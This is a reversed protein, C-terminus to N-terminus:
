LFRGGDDEVNFFEEYGQLHIRYTREFRRFDIVLGCPAVVWFFPKRSLFGLKCIIFDKLTTENGTRIAAAKGSSSAADNM